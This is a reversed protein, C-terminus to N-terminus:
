IGAGEFRVQVLLCVGAWATAAQPAHKLSTSILETVSKLLRTGEHIKEKTEFAKKTRELGCEVLRSFEAHRQEWVTQNEVNNGAAPNEGSGLKDNLLKTYAETLKPDDEQVEDYAQVWLSDPLSLPPAADAVTESAEGTTLSTPQVPTLIASPLHNVTPGLTAETESHGDNANGQGQLTTSPTPTTSDVPSQTTANAPNQSTYLVDNSHSGHSRKFRQRIREFRTLTM